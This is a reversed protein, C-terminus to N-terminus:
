DLWKVFSQIKTYETYKKSYNYIEDKIDNTKYKEWISPINIDVILKHNGNLMEIVGIIKTIKFPTYKPLSVTYGPVIVDWPDGDSVNICSNYKLNNQFCLIEGYNLIGFRYKAKRRELHITVPKHKIIHLMTAYNIIM